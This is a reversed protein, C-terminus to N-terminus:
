LQKWRAIEAAMDESSFLASGAALVTAGAEVARKGTFYNIGGDVEIEIKLGRNKIEKRVKCIKPLCDEIFAQGGFGPYVTMVLILDIMDIYPLADELSTNPNISLGARKGLSHIRDIAKEVNKTAELHVTILDAGASAFQDIFNEPKIIMLHVDFPITAHPRIHKIVTPGITINPVFVGDMVDIHIWDAGANQVKKVENALSGFDASLLSPAVKVM